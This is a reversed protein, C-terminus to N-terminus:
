VKAMNRTGTVTGGCYYIYGTVAGAACRVMVGIQDAPSLSQAQVIEAYQNNAFVDANWRAYCDNGANTAAFVKQTSSITFTGQMNTWNASYATLAQGTTGSFADSVPLAM